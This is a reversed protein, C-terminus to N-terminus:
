QIEGVSEEGRIIREAVERSVGETARYVYENATKDWKRQVLGLKLLHQLCRYTECERKKQGTASM